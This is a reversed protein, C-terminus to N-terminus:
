LSAIEKLNATQTGSLEEAVVIRSALLVFSSSLAIGMSDVFPYLLCFLHVKTLDSVVIPEVKAPLKRCCNVPKEFPTQSMICQLLEWHLFFMMLSTNM